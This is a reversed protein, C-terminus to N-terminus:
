SEVWAEGDFFTLQLHLGSGSGADIDVRIQDGWSVRNNPPDGTEDPISWNAAFRSHRDGAEIEIRGGSELMDVATDVNHLQVRILVGAPDTTGAHAEVLAFGHLDKAIPFYRAGDGVVIADTDSLVAVELVIPVADEGAFHDRGHKAPKNM